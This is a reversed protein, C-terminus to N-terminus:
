LANLLCELQEREWASLLEVPDTGYREWTELSGIRGSRCDECYALTGGDNFLALRWGDVKVPMLGNYIESLSQSSTRRM